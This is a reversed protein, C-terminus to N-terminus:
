VSAMYRPVDKWFGNVEGPRLRNVSVIMPCSNFTLPASNLKGVFTFWVSINLIAALGAGDSSLKLGARTMSVAVPSSMEPGTPPEGGTFKEEIKVSVEILLPLGPTAVYSQLFM